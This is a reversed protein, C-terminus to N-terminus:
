KASRSLVIDANAGTGGSRGDVGLSRLVFSSGDPAVEYLVRKGWPDLFEDFDTSSEYKSTLDELRTPLNRDGSTRYFDEIQSAIGQLMVAALEEKPYGRRKFFFGGDFTGAQIDLYLFGIFAMCTLLLATRILIRKM